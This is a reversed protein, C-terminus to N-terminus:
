GQTKGVEQSPEEAIFARRTILNETPPHKLDSKSVLAVSWRSSSFARLHLATRTPRTKFWGGVAHTTNRSVSEIM